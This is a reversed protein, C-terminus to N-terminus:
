KIKKPIYIKIAEFLVQNPEFLLLVRKGEKEYVAGYTTESLVGSGYDLTTDINGILSKYEPNTFQAMVVFQRVDITLIRKRKSRNMIKDIDLDGNTFIYEYEVNFRNILIYEAWIVGAVVLITLKFKSTIPYSVIILLIGLLVLGIKKLIDTKNGQRKILQEKFVDNYMTTQSVSGGKNIRSPIQLVGQTVVM